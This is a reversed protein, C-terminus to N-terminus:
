RAAAKSLRNWIILLVWAHDLTFEFDFEKALEIVTIMDFQTCHMKVPMEHRLVKGWEGDGSGM